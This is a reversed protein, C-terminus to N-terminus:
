LGALRKLARQTCGSVAVEVWRTAAKLTGGFVITLASASAFLIAAAALAPMWWGGPLNPFFLALYAAALVLIAGVAQVLSAVTRGLTVSITAIRNLQAQFRAAEEAVRAEAEKRATTETQLADQLEARAATRAKDLIEPVTGETFAGDAGLTSAVLANRAEASFRLLYYDESSIDGQKELRDIEQLYRKWLGDTPNMAAYCDAIVTKRPLDPAELPKKLWVITTLIHDLLCHPVVSGRYVSYEHRFFGATARALLHNTTIFIASCSEIDLPGRGRRLRHIATICDVDHQLTDERLYGVENQLATRLKAEDVGLRVVYPPRPRTQIRLGRISQELRAVVLEVDSASRGSDLLYQITPGFSHRLKAHTRLAQAAASLVRKAEDATEEFVRLNANEEYLLDLLERRPLARTEGELGLAQLVFATDFYVEVRDFRRNVAGLDSYYLAGALMSGKAITELFDFGEPDRKSIEAVFSSVLFDAHEPPTTPRPLPAAGMAARLVAACGQELHVLLAAEAQESTWDVGFERRCFDTLKALLAEHKRVVDTRVRGFDTGVVAEDSRRYIGHTQTVYGHKAARGLVTSLAGQPIALGFTKQIAQQLDAGSVEPQPAARLAEVVFPVFNEIHDRGADWNVKIIALSPIISEL